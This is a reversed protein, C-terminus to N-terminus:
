KEGGVSNLEDEKANMFEIFEKSVDFAPDIYGIGGNPAKALFLKLGNAKAFEESYGKVKNDIVQSLKATKEQYPIMKMQQINGIQREAEQLVKDLKQAQETTITQNKYGEQMKTQADMGRRQWSEMENQIALGEKELNAQSEAYLKFDKMMVEVDYYGITLDGVNASTVETKIVKSKDKKDEKGGCAVLTGAILVIAFLKM